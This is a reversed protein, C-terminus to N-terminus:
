AAEGAHGGAASIRENEGGESCQRPLDPVAARSASPSAAVAAIPEVMAPDNGLAPSGVGGLWALALVRWLTAM